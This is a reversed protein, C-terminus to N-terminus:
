LEVTCLWHIIALLTYFEPEPSVLFDQADPAYTILANKDNLLYPPSATIHNAYNKRLSSLSSLPRNTFSFINPSHSFRKVYMIRSLAIWQYKMVSVVYHLLRWAVQQSTTQKGNLNTHEPIVMM